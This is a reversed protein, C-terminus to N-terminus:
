IMGKQEQELLYDILVEENAFEDPGMDSIWADLSNFQESYECYDTSNPIFVKVETGSPTTFLINKCPSHRDFSHVCHWGKFWGSRKAKRYEHVVCDLLRKQEEKSLRM